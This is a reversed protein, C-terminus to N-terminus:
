RVYALGPTSALTGLLGLLFAGILLALFRVNAPGADRM